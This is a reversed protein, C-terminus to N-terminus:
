CALDSVMGAELLNPRGCVRIPIGLTGRMGGRVGWRRRLRAMGWSLRRRSGVMGRRLRIRRGLVLPPVPVLLM